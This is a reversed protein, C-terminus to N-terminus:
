QAADVAHDIWASDAAKLAIGTSNFYVTGTADSLHVTRRMPKLSRSFKGLATSENATTATAASGQAKWKLVISAPFEANSFKDSVPISVNLWASSQDPAIRFSGNPIFRDARLDLLGAGTCENVKLIRLELRERKGADKRVFVSTETSICGAPDHSTFTAVANAREGNGSAALAPLGALLVAGAVFASSQYARLKQTNM